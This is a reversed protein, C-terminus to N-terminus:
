DWYDRALVRHLGKKARRGLAQNRLLLLGASVAELLVLSYDTALYLMAPLPRPPNPPPALPPSLPAVHSCSGFIVSSELGLSRKGTLEFKM